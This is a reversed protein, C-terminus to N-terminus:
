PATPALGLVAEAARRDRGLQAVLDDPGAFRRTERLRAVWEIRVWEGYLDADVGFLHAELSRRADGFTPRPGQNLMGGARGGRWEVWVAWVGDPPLQKRGPAAGLNITPVGLVRGRREGAIVQGTIRYPRGLLRAAGALDGEAVLARIRSSSVPGGDREVAPVVTVGFGHSAGIRRLTEVDGARGRGFGHDYGIVLERLGCHAELVERVFGEPPLAAIRADFGLVLLHGIGTEALAARRELPTSLLAPARDPRVVELPHPEFSVVVSARGTAEARARTAELVARHALHVGDFTGVTVVAGAAGLGFADSM